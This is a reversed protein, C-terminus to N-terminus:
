VPISIPPPLQELTPGQIKFITHVPSEDGKRRNQAVLMLAGGPKVHKWIQVEVGVPINLNECNLVRLTQEVGQPLSLRLAALLDNYMTEVMERWSYPDVNGEGTAMVFVKGGTKLRGASEKIPWPGYVADTLEAPCLYHCWWNFPFNSGDYSSILWKKGFSLIWCRKAKEPKLDGASIGCFGIGLTLLAAITTMVPYYRVFDQSKTMAEFVALGFITSVFLTLGMGSLLRTRKNLVLSLLNAEAWCWVLIWLVVLVVRLM